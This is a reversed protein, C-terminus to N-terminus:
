EKSFNELQSLDEEMRSSLWNCINKLLESNARKKPIILRHMRGTRVKKESAFVLTRDLLSSASVSIWGLAIGKSQAAAQLIVAYDSFRNWTGEDFNNHINKNLFPSWQAMSHDTLHLFTHANYNGVRDIPGNAALYQPSCVPVIVEPCFDWYDYRPDDDVIIRTAIDVDDTLERMIGSVLEFRLDVDPFKLNFESLRPILWYTVFSSSLSMTVPRKKNKVRGKLIQITEDIDTLGRQTVNLLDRGEPTLDLGKSHRKFVQFGLDDEFQAISRSISPQTVNFENAAATFSGTRAAAEFIFLARASPISKLFNAM